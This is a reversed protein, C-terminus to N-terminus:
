EGFVVGELLCAFLCVFLCVFLGKTAIRQKTDFKSLKQCIQGRVAAM